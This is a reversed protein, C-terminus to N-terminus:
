AMKDVKSGIPGSTNKAPGLSSQQNKGTAAPAIDIKPAVPSAPLPHSAGNRQRALSELSQSIAPAPGPPPIPSIPM